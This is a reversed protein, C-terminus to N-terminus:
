IKRAAIKKKVIRIRGLKFFEKKRMKQYYWSIKKVCITRAHNKTLFKLELNKLWISVEFTQMENKKYM